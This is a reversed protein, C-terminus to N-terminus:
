ARSVSLVGKLSVIKNRVQNIKSLEGLLTFEAEIRSANASMNYSLLQIEETNKLLSLVKAMLDPEDIAEVYINTRTEEELGAWRAPLVRDRYNEFIDKSNPCDYRHIRLGNRGPYAFIADGYQPMCCKALEYPVEKLAEDIVIGKARGEQMEDATKKIPRHQEEATDHHSPLQPARLAEAYLELLTQLDCKGEDIATYLLNYNPYGLERFVKVFLKEDYHLKRNKLRRDIQERVNAFRGEKQERLFRKIKNKAATSVVIHLWDETPMQSRDTFIQVTDGNHLLTRLSVNKGNIKGSKARYGVNSHIAFAFDLLTAQPPLKKVDGTPTFVYINKSQKLHFREEDTLESDRDELLTRAHEIAGDISNKKELGKYRWHAAVGHEAIEDMRSTRIQVEVYKDDPGLVTIQLSQYGNKKPVSVWDRLRETNPPFLDTVLSYFYWCAMEEEHPPAEIIIRLAALDYIKDFSVSKKDIKNYISSISKSRAKIHYDWRIHSEEFRSQIIRVVRRIYADRESKKEGLKKKIDYFVTPQLFKLCLDELEGKVAYLGLKHMLPIFFSSVESALAVVETSTMYEKANRLKLIRDAMMILLVRIDEVSSLILERSGETDFSSRLSLLGSIRSLNDLLMRTAPPAFQELQPTSLFNGIYPYFLLITAISTAHLSFDKVVIHAVEMAYRIPHFGLFFRSALSFDEGVDPLPEQLVKEILSRLPTIYPLIETYHGIDHLIKAIAERDEVSLPQKALQLIKFYDGQPM